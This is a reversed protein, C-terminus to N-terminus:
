YVVFGHWSFAPLGLLTDEALVCSCSLCRRRRSASATFNTPAIQFHIFKGADQAIVRGRHLPTGQSERPFELLLVHNPNIVLFEHALFLASLSPIKVNWACLAISIQQAQSVAELLQQFQGFFVIANSPTTLLVHLATKVTELLDKGHGGLRALGVLASRRHHRHGVNHRRSTTSPCLSTKNSRVSVTRLTRKTVGKV